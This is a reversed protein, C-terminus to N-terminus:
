RSVDNDEDLAVVTADYTEPVPLEWCQGDVSCTVKIVPEFVNWTNKANLLPAAYGVMTRLISLVLVLLLKSIIEM